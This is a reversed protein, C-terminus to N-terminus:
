RPWSWKERQSELEMEKRQQQLEMEKQQRQLELERQKRRFEIEMQKKEVEVEAEVKLFEAEMELRKRFLRSSPNSSPREGLSDLTNEPETPLHDHKQLSLVSVSTANPNVSDTTHAEQQNTHDINGEIAIPAQETSEHSKTMLSPEHNQNAVSVKTQILAESSLVPETVLTTTLTEAEKTEQLWRMWENVASLSQM